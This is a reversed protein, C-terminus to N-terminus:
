RTTARRVIRTRVVHSGETAALRIPADAERRALQVMEVVEECLYRHCTHSRLAPELACGTATHFVCSGSVSRAPLQSLYRGQLGDRTQEPHAQAIRELDEATLWAHTSGTKCCHGRCTACATAVLARASAPLPTARDDAPASAMGRSQEQLEDQLQGQSREPSVSKRLHQAFAAKRYNPLRCTRTRNVPLYAVRATDDPLQQRRTRDMSARQEARVRDLALTRCQPAACVERQWPPTHARTEAPPM